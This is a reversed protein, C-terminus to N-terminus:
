EEETGLGWLSKLFELEATSLPPPPRLLADGIMVVVRNGLQDTSIENISSRVTIRRRSAEEAHDESFFPCSNRPRKRNEASHGEDRESKNICPSILQASVM